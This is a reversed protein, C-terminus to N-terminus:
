DTDDDGGAEGSEKKRAKQDLTAQLPQLKQVFSDSDVARAVRFAPPFLHSMYLEDGWQDRGQQNFWLHMAIGAVFVAVAAARMRRPHRPEIGLVHFYLMAAGIAYLPVFAFDSAGSWSLAFALVLALTGVVQSALVGSLMVRVHWWFHSRRAFLKSVLAWGGCWLLGAGLTGTLLTGLARTLTDPDNDLWTSFLLGAVVALALLLTPGISRALSTSGKLPLEPALAHEALRLRLHSDGVDLRLPRSGVAGRTGAALRRGDAKLGNLTEGVRVFTGADDADLTFHHPAIHADDLVLDNDLARGVRVPWQTVPLAQRVHGDRDLVELLAITTM